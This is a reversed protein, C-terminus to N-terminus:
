RIPDSDPSSDEKIRLLQADIWKRVRSHMPFHAAMGFVMFAVLIYNMVTNRENFVPLLFTMACFVITVGIVTKTYYIALLIEASDQNRPQPSQRISRVLIRTLFNPRWTGQALKRTERSALMGPLLFSLLVLLAAAIISGCTEFLPVGLQAKSIQFLLAVTVGFIISGVSIQLIKVTERLRAQISSSM